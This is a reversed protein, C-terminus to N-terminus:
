EAVITIYKRVEQAYHFVKSFPHLSFNHLPGIVPTEWGGAKTWRIQLMHDSCHHGFVLKDWDPKKARQGTQLTKISM